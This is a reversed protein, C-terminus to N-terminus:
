SLLRIGVDVVSTCIGTASITYQKNGCKPCRFGAPWKLRFLHERCQQETGYQLQFERLSVGPQFHIESRNAM